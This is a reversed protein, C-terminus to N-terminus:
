LVMHIGLPNKFLLSFLGFVVSAFKLVSNEKRIGLIHM